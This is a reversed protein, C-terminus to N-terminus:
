QRHQYQSEKVTLSYYPAKDYRSWKRTVSSTDIVVARITNGEIDHLFVQPSFILNDILGAEADTLPLTTINYSHTIDSKIRVKEADLMSSRLSYLEADTNSGDWSETCKGCVLSDIGGYKNVYYLAYNLCKDTLVYQIGMASRIQEITDESVYYPQAIYAWYTSRSIMRNYMVAQGTTVRRCLPEQLSYAANDSFDTKFDTNYNYCAKVEINGESTAVIFTGFISTLEIQTSDKAQIIPMLETYDASLVQRCIPSLDITVNGGDISKVNGNFLTKGGLSVTYEGEPITVPIRYNCSYYAM